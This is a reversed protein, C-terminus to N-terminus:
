SKSTIVQNTYLVAMLTETSISKSRSKMKNIKRFIKEDAATASPLCLLKLMFESLNPCMFVNDIHRAKSVTDWFVEPKMSSDVTLTDLMNRLLRWESDVVQIDPTALHEFNSILDVLSPVNKEIVVKPNLNELSELIHSSVPLRKYIQSVGEILFELCNMRFGRLDEDQLLVSNTIEMQVKIGLYMEELPKFNAEDRYEIDKLLTSSIYADDLYCEFITKLAIRVANHLVHIQSSESQMHRDLNDFIPLVFDLFMLYLKTVPISLRQLVAEPTELRDVLKAKAFYSMLVDYNELIKSVLEHVSLLRTQEPHLFKYAKVSAFAEFEQFVIHNPSLQFYSYVNRALDELSYPLKLCASSACLSFSHSICKMVFLHPIDEKLLSSLSHSDGLVSNGGDAAIGIMNKKYPILNKNFFEVVDNYLSHATAEKMPIFGLFADTISYNHLVRVIMSLHKDIGRRTSEDVILSFKNEKLLQMLEECANKGLVSNILLGMDTGECELNQAVCSDPCISKIVQILHDSTDISLDHRAIFSAIQLKAKHLRSALLGPDEKHRPKIPSRSFSNIELTMPSEQIDELEEMSTQIQVTNLPLDMGPMPYDQQPMFTSSTCHESQRSRPLSLMKQDFEAKIIKHKKNKAHNKLDVKGAGIRIDVDCPICHAYFEGKASSTIWDKLLPDEELLHSYKQSKKKKTIKSDEGPVPLEVSAIPQDQGLVYATICNEGGHSAKVNARHKKMESHRRLDSKGSTIKLHAGCPICYAYSNGRSSAKIWGRFLPSNEFKASYRQLYKRKKKFNKPIEEEKEDDYSNANCEERKMNKLHLGESSEGEYYTSRKLDAKEELIDRKSKTNM